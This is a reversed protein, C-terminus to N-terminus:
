GNNDFQEVKIHASLLWVLGSIFVTLTRCIQDWWGPYTLPSAPQLHQPCGYGYINILLFLQIEVQSSLYGQRHFINVFINM